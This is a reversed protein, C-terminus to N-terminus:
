CEELLKLALSKFRDMEESYTHKLKLHEQKAEKHLKSLGQHFETNQEQTIVGIHEDFGCEYDLLQQENKSILIAHKNLMSTHEPLARELLYLLALLRRTDHQWQEAEQIWALHEEHWRKNEEQLREKNVM